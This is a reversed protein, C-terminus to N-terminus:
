FQTVPNRTPPLQQQQQQQQQLQQQQLQRHQQHLLTAAASQSARCRLLLNQWRCCAADAALVRATERQALGFRGILKDSAYFFIYFFGSKLQL